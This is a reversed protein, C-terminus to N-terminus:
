PERAGEFPGVNRPGGTAVPNGWLDRGGNDPIPFAAGVAPSDAILRYFLMERVAEPDTPLDRLDRPLVLRPDVVRGVLRGALMEKGTAEAWEKLTQYERDPYVV